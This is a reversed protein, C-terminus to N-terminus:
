GIRKGSDPHQAVQQSSLAVADPVLPHACHHGAHADFHQVACGIGALSMRGKRDIPVPQAMQLDGSGVMDPRSINREIRHRTSKHIEERDQVPGTAPHQRPPQGVSQRGVEAALPDM